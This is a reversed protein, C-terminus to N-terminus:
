VRYSVVTLDSVRDDFLREEVLGLVAGTCLDGRVSKENVVVRVGLPSSSCESVSLCSNCDSFVSPGDLGVTLGMARLFDQLLAVM